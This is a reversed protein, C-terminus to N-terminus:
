SVRIASTEATKPRNNHLECYYQCARANQLRMVHILACAPRLRAQAQPHFREIGVNEELVDRDDGRCLYRGAQRGAQVVRGEWPPCRGAGSEGGVGYACV